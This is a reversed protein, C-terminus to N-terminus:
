FRPETIRKINNITINTYIVSVSNKSFVFIKQRVAPGRMLCFQVNEYVLSQKLNLQVNLPNIHYFRVPKLRQYFGTLVM